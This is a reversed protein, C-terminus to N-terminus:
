SDVAAQQESPPSSQASLRFYLYELILFLFSFPDLVIWLYSANSCAALEKAFDRHLVYWCLPPNWLHSHPLSFPLLVSLNLTCLVSASQSLSLTWSSSQVLVIIDAIVRVTHSLPFSTFFLSAASCGAFCATSQNCIKVKKFKCMLKVMSWFGSPTYM